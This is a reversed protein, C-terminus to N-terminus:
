SRADASVYTPLQDWVFQAQVKTSGLFNATFRQDRRGVHDATSEFRWTSGQHNYRFRDVMAGDGQDEYRQYRAADGEVQTVRVGLDTIGTAPVSPQQASTVATALLLGAAVLNFTKRM